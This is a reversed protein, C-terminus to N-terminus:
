VGHLLYSFNVFALFHLHGKLKVFNKLFIKLFELKVFQLNEEVFDEDLVQQSVGQLLPFYDITSGQKTLRCGEETTTLFRDSQM